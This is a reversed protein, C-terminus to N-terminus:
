SLRRSLHAPSLLDSHDRDGTKPFATKWDQRMSVVTIGYEDAKDLVEVLPSLRFERDYAVERASDGHHILLSLRLGLGTKAYRLMALDGDSNGCALIARRGIVSDFAKFFSARLTLLVTISVQFM